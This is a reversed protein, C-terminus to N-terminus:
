PLHVFFSLVFVAFCLAAVFLQGSILDALDSAGNIDRYHRAGLHKESRWASWVLLAGAIPSIIQIM